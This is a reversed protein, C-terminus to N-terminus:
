FGGEQLLSQCLCIQLHVLVRECPIDNETRVLGGGTDVNCTARKWGRTASRIHKM